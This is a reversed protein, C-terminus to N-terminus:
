GARKAGTLREVVVAVPKRRAGHRGKFRVTEGVRPARKFDAVDFRVPGKVRDCRILGVAKYRDFHIVNGSVWEEPDLDPAMALPAATKPTARAPVSAVSTSNVENDSDKRWGLLAAVLLVVGLVVATFLAAAVTLRVNDGWAAPLMDTVPALVTQIDLM